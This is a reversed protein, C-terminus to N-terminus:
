YLGWRIKWLKFAFRFGRDNASTRIRRREFPTDPASGTGWGARYGAEEVWRVVEPTRKGQPYSFHMVPVGLNQEIVRKSEFVERRAADPTMADLRAHTMGHSGVSMGADRWRKLDDWTAIAERDDYWTDKGGLAQPIIFSTARVGMERLIPLAYEIVDRFGDDFTISASESHEGSLLDDLPVFRCRRAVAELQRRFVEPEVNNKRPRGPAFPGVRHYYLVLAVPRM